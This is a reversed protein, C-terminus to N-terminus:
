ASSGAADQPATDPCATSQGTLPSRSHHVAAPRWWRPKQALSSTLSANNARLTLAHFEVCASNSSQLLSFASVQWWISSRCSGRPHSRQCFLWLLLVHGKGGVCSHSRTCTQTPDTARSPQTNPQMVTSQSWSQGCCMATYTHLCSREDMYKM